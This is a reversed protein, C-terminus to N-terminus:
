RRVTATYPHHRYQTRYRLSFTYDGNEPLSPINSHHYLLSLICALCIRFDRGFEDVIPIDEHSTILIDCYFHQCYHYPADNSSHPCYHIVTKTLPLHAHLLNRFLEVFLLLFQTHLECLLVQELEDFGRNGPSSKQRHYSSTSSNRTLGYLVVICRFCADDSGKLLKLTTKEASLTISLQKKLEQFGVDM